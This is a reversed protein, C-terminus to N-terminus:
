HSKNATDDGPAGPAEESRQLVDYNPTNRQLSHQVRYAIGQV